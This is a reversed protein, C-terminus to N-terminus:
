SCNGHECVHTGESLIERKPRIETQLQQQQDFGLGGAGGDNDEDDSSILVDDEENHPPPPPPLSNNGAPNSSNSMPRGVADFGKLGLSDMPEKKTEIM